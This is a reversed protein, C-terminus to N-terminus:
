SKRLAEAEHDPDNHHATCTNCNAKHDYCTPGNLDYNNDVYPDDPNIWGQTAAISPDKSIPGSSLKSCIVIPGPPTPAKVESQIPLQYSRAHILLLEVVFANPVDVWKAENEWGKQYLIWPKVVVHLAYMDSMRQLCVTKLDRLALAMMEAYM